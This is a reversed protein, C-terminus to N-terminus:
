SFNNLRTYIPSLVSKIKGFLYLRCINMSVNLMAQAQLFIKRMSSNKSSKLQDMSFPEVDSDCVIRTTGDKIMKIELVDGERTMVEAPWKLKSARHLVLELKKPEVNHVDAMHKTM